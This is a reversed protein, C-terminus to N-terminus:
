LIFMIDVLKKVVTEFTPHLPTNLM